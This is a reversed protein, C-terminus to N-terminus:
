PSRTEEIFIFGYLQLWRKLKVIAEENETGWMDLTAKMLMTDGSGLYIFGKHRSLFEKVYPHGDMRYNVLPIKPKRGRLKDIISPKYFLDFCPWTRRRYIVAIKRM